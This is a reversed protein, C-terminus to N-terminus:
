RDPTPQTPATIRDDIVIPPVPAGEPADPDVGDVIAGVAEYIRAAIVRDGIFPAAIRIRTGRGCEDAMVILVMVVQPGSLLVETLGDGRATIRGETHTPSQWTNREDAYRDIFRWTDIHCVLTVTSIGAARHLRQQYLAYEQGQAVKDAGAQAARTRRARAREDREAIEEPTLDGRAIRIWDALGM